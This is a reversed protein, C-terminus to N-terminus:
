QEERLTLEREIELLRMLESWNRGNPTILDKLKESNKILMDDSWEVYPKVRVFGGM